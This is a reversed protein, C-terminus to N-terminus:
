LIFNFSIDVETMAVRRQQHDMLQKELQAQPRLDWGNFENVTKGYAKVANGMLRYTNGAGMSDEMKGNVMTSDVMLGRTPARATSRTTRTGVRTGAAMKGCIFVTAM